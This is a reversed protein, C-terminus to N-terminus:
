YNGPWRLFCPLIGFDNFLHNQNIADMKFYKKENKNKYYYDLFSDIYSNM